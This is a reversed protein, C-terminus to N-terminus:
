RYVGATSPTAPMNRYINTNKGISVRIFFYYKLLIIVL